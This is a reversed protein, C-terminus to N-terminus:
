CIKSPDIYKLGERSRQFLDSMMKRMMMVMNLLYCVIFSFCCLM